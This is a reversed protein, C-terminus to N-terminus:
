RAKKQNIVTRLVAIERRTQRVRLPNDLQRMNLQIRLNMLEESKERVRNELEEVALDRLDHAKKM